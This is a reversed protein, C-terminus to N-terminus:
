SLTKYPPTNYFANDDGVGEDEDNGAQVDFPCEPAVSPILVVESTM